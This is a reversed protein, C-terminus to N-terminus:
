RYRRLFKRVMLTGAYSDRREDAVMGSKQIRDPAATHLPIM